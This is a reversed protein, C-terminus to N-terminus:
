LGCVSYELGVSLLWDHQRVHMGGKTGVIVITSPLFGDAGM